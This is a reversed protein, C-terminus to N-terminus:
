AGRTLSSFRSGFGCVSKHRDGITSGLSKDFTAVLGGEAGSEGGAKVGIEYVLIAPREEHKGGDFAVDWEPSQEKLEVGIGRQLVAFAFGGEAQGGM